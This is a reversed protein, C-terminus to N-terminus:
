RGCRVSSLEYGSMHRTSPAHELMRDPNVAVDNRQFPPSHDDPRIASRRLPRDDFSTAIDSPVEAPESPQLPRVGDVSGCFRMPGPEATPAPPKYGGYRCIAEVCLRTSERARQKLAKVYGGAISGVASDTPPHHRHSYPPWLPEGGPVLRSTTSMSTARRASTPRGVGSTFQSFRRAITRFSRDIIQGGGCVGRCGNSLAEYVTRNTGAHFLCRLPFRAPQPALHGRHARRILDGFRHPVSPIILRPKPAGRPWTPRSTPAYGDSSSRQVRHSFRRCRPKSSRSVHRAFAALKAIRGVYTEECRVGLIM